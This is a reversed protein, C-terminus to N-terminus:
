STRGSASWRTRATATSPPSGRARALRARAARAAPAARAHLAARELVATAENARQPNLGVGGSRAGRSRRRDGRARREGYRELLKAARAGGVHKVRKLYALLASTAPRRSRSRGADVKVQMGSASTTRGSARSGCASASRSIRSRASRARHRRRRARRRHGRLRDGREVLRVRRVVVEDEFPTGPTGETMPGM